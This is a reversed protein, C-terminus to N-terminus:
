VAVSTPQRPELGAARYLDDIVAMNRVADDATSPFPAGDRIAAVFADLQHDYTGTRAPHETRRRGGVRVRLSGFLKPMLPNHAVLEGQEGRVVV